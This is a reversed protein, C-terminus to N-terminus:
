AVEKMTELEQVGDSNILTRTMKSLQTKISGDLMLSGAKIILGGILNADHTTHLEISQNLEKKLISSIRKAQEASLEVASIVDVTIEGKHASILRRLEVTIAVLCNLRRNGAIISILRQMVDSIKAEKCLINMAKQHEARSMLPTELISTLEAVDSLILELVSLDKELEKLKNNDEAWSFGASAYRKAIRTKEAKLSM